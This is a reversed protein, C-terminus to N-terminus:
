EMERMRCESFRFRSMPVDHAPSYDM